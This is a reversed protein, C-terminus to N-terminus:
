LQETTVKEDSAFVLMSPARLGTSLADMSRWLDLSTETASRTPGHGSDAEVSEDPQAARGGGRGASTTSPNIAGAQLLIMGARTNSERQIVANVATARTSTLSIAQGTANTMPEDVPVIEGSIRAGRMMEAIRKLLWQREVSPAPPVLVLVRLRTYRLWFPDLHLLFGLQLLVLTRAQFSEWLLSAVYLAPRTPDLDDATVPAATANDENSNLSGESLRKSREQQQESWVNNTGGSSHDSQTEELQGTASLASVASWGDLVWVDITLGARPGHRALDVRFDLLPPGGQHRPFIEEIIRPIHDGGLRAGGPLLLGPGRAPMMMSVSTRFRQFGGSLSSRDVTSTDDAPLDSRGGSTEEEPAFGGIEFGRTAVVTRGLATAARTTGVWVELGPPLDAVSDACPFSMVLTNPRIPGLGGGLMLGLMGDIFNRAVTVTSFAINKGLAAEVVEVLAETAASVTTPDIKAPQEEEEITTGTFHV